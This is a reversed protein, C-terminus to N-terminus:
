TPRYERGRMEALIRDFEDGTDFGRTLLFEKLTPRARAHGPQGTAAGPGTAALEGPDISAAEREVVLAYQSLAASVVETADAHRGSAVLRQAIARAEEPLTIQVARM